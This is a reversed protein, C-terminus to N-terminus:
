TCLVSFVEGSVFVQLETIIVITELQHTCRLIEFDVISRGTVGYSSIGAFSVVFVIIARGLRASEGNLAITTADIHFFSAFGIKIEVGRRSGKWKSCRLHKSHARHPNM